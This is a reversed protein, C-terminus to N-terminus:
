EFYYDREKKRDYNRSYFPIPSDNQKDIPVPMDANSCNNGDNMEENVSPNLLIEYVDPTILSPINLDKTLAVLINVHSYICSNPKKYYM